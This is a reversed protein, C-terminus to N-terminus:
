GKTQCGPIPQQAALSREETLSRLEPGQALCHRPTAGEGRPGLPPVCASRDTVTGITLLRLSETRSSTMESLFVQVVTVNGAAAFYVAFSGM